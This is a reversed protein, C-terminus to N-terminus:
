CSASAADLLLLLSPTKLTLPSRKVGTQSLPNVHTSQSLPTCSKSCPLQRAPESRQEPQAQDQKTEPAKAELPAALLKRCPLIFCAQPQALPGQLSILPKCDRSLRTGQVSVSINKDAPILAGGQKLGQKLRLRKHKACLELPNASMKHGTKFQQGKM